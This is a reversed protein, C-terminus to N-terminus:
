TMDFMFVILFFDDKKSFSIILELPSSIFFFRIRIIKAVKNTIKEGLADASPHPLWPGPSFVSHIFSEFPFQTSVQFLTFGFIL